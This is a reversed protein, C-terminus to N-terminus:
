TVHIFAWDNKGLRPCHQYTKKKMGSFGKKTLENSLSANFSSEKQETRNRGRGEM